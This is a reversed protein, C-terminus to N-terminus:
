HHRFVNKFGQNQTITIKDTSPSQEIMVHEDWFGSSLIETTLLPGAEVLVEMVGAEGLLRLADLFSDGIVVDFGNATAASIYDQSIRRRRDMVVLTRRKNAFDAVHRVTFLPADARVTGSGTIIADARKRLEHALMLSSPSTFTKQGVAPIMSGNIDLAQKVTVWPLGTSKLKKFPAILRLASKADPWFQVDVGAAQLVGVGGGLVQPNPDRAGIWIHKAPTALIAATCPGTRGQHNCPELTVIIIHIRDVVGADRCKQIALAEAHLQGAKQHAAVALENCSDDLIVCGVPPNPATAGEYEQAAALARAFGAHLKEVAASNPDYKMEALM